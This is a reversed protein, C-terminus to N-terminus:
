TAKPTIQRRNAFSVNESRAFLKDVFYDIKSLDGQMIKVINRIDPIHKRFKEYQNMIQIDLNIINEKYSESIDRGNELEELYDYLEMFSDLKLSNVLNQVIYDEEEKADVKRSELQVTDAKTLQLKPAKGVQNMAGASSFNDTFYKKDAKKESKDFVYKRVLALLEKLISIDSKHAKLNFLYCTYANLFKTKTEKEQLGIAHLPDVFNPYMMKGEESTMKEFMKWIFTVSQKIVSIGSNTDNADLHARVHKLYIFVFIMTPFIYNGLFWKEKETVNMFSFDCKNSISDTIFSSLASNKNTMAETGKSAFFAKSEEWTDRLSYAAKILSSVSQTQNDQPDKKEPPIPPRQIVVGQTQQNDSDNFFQPKFFFLNKLRNIAGIINKDEVNELFGNFHKQISNDFPRFLEGKFLLGLNNTSNAEFIDSKSGLTSKDRKNIDDNSFNELLPGRNIKCIDAVIKDHIQSIKETYDNAQATDPLGVSSYVQQIMPFCLCLAINDTATDTDRHDRYERKPQVYYGNLVAVFCYYSLIFAYEEKMDEGQLFKLIGEIDCKYFASIFNLLKSYTADMNFEGDKSLEQFSKSSFFLRVNPDISSLNKGHSTTVWTIIDFVYM